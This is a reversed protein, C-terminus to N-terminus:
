GGQIASIVEIRDNQTLIYHEHESKPVFVDNVLLAYPTEAGFEFLAQKLSAEPKLTYLHNNIFVIM